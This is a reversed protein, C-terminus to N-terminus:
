NFPLQEPAPYVTVHSFSAQAGNSSQGNEVFLEITGSTYDNNDSISSVVKGNILVVIKSGKTVVTLTNQRGIPNISSSNTPSVLFSDKSSDAFIKVIDFSNDGFIDIFYGQVLNSNGRIYLGASDNQDAKSLTLATTVEFDGFSAPVKNGASIPMNLIKHNADALTMMNNRITSSYGSGSALGWGRSNDAFNDSFLPVPTPTATIDNKTHTPTGNSIISTNSGRSKVLFFLGGGIVLLLLASVGIILASNPGIRSLPTRIFRGAPPQIPSQQGYAEPADFPMIPIPSSPQGYESDPLSPPQSPSLLDPSSSKQSASSAQQTPGIATQETYRAGCYSCYTENQTLPVSCQPCIRSPSDM